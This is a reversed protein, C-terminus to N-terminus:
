TFKSNAVVYTVTFYVPMLCVKRRFQTGQKTVIHSLEIGFFTCSDAEIYVELPVRSIRTSGHLQLFGWSSRLSLSLSPTICTKFHMKGMRQRADAAGSSLVAPLSLSRCFRTSVSTPLTQEEFVNTCVLGVCLIQLRLFLNSNEGELNRVKGILDECYCGKGM